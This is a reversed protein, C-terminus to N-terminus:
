MTHSINSGTCIVGVMCGVTIDSIRSIGISNIYSLTSSTVVFTLHGCLTIGPSGLIIINRHDAYALFQIPLLIAITPIPTDHCFCVGCSIDGIRAIPIGCSSSEEDHSFDSYRRRRKYKLEDDSKRKSRSRSKGRGM